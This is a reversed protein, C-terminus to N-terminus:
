AGSDKSRPFPHASASRPANGTWTFSTSPARATPRACGFNQMWVMRPHIRDLAISYAVSIAVTESLSRWTERSTSIAARPASEYYLPREGEKTGEPIPCLPKPIGGTDPVPAVDPQEQAVQTVARTLAAHLEESLTVHGGKVDTDQIRPISLRYRYEVTLTPAAGVTSLANLLYVKDVGYYGVKYAAYLRGRLRIWDASENAGRYRISYLDSGIEGPPRQMRVFRLGERRLTVVCDLTGSGTSLRDIILDRKGDGDIDLLSYSVGGREGQRAAMDLSQLARWEDESVGDPREKPFHWDDNPGGGDNVDSFTTGMSKLKLAALAKELPFEPDKLRQAEVAARLDQLAQRDTEDPQYALADRSLNSPDTCVPIAASNQAPRCDIGAGLAPACIIAGAFLVAAAWANREPPM